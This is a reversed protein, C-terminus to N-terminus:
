AAVPASPESRSIRRLSRRMTDNVIRSVPVGRREAEDRLAAIVDSDWSVSAVERRRKGAIGHTRM